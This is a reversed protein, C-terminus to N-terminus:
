KLIVSQIFFHDQNRGRYRCVLGLGKKYYSTSLYVSDTSTQYKYEAIGLLGQYYCPPLLRSDSINIVRFVHGSADLWAQNLIPSGPIELYEQKTSDNYCYINHTGPDERLLVDGTFTLPNSDHRIAYTVGNIVQHGTIQFIPAPLAPDFKGTWCYYVWENNVELPYYTDKGNGDCIDERPTDTVTTTEITPNVIPNKGSTTSSTPKLQETQDKKCSNLYTILSCCFMILILFKKM